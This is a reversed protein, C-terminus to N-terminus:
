HSDPVARMESQRREGCHEEYFNMGPNGLFLGAFADNPKDYLERPSGMQAIEGENMLAIHDALTMAETQDHTVYIITQKM